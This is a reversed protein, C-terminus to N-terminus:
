KQGARMRNELKQLVLSLSFCVVFYIILIGMYLTYYEYTRGAIAQARYLLEPVAIMAVLSSDKILTIFENGLSPLSNTLAQPLIIYIMAQSESMGLSLAAERQGKDVSLIGGRFIEAIYAASNLGLTLIGAYIAPARHLQLSSLYDNGFLNLIDQAKPFLAFYFLFIQVMMPTDRFVEIYWFAPWRFARHRSLRMIALALGLIMGIILAIFTIYLSYGAGILLNYREDWLLEWNIGTLKRPLDFLYDWFPHQEM